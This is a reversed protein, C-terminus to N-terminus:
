NEWGGEDNLQRFFGTIFKLYGKKGDTSRHLKVSNLVKSISLLVDKKSFSNLELVRKIKNIIAIELNNYDAKDSFINDRLKKLSEIIKSDELSSDKKYNLYIIEEIGFLIPLFAEKNLDNIADFGTGGEDCLEFISHNNDNEESLYLEGIQTQGLETLAIEEKNLKGCKPCFIKKEFDLIDEFVIKGTECDFEINCKKCEFNILAMRNKNRGKFKRM